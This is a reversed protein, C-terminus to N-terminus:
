CPRSPIVAPGPRSCSSPSTPTPAPSRTPLPGRSSSGTSRPGRSAAAKQRWSRSSGSPTATSRPSPTRGEREIAALPYAPDIPVAVAGVGLIALYAVVFAPTNACIIAVRDGPHVGLRALGGRMGAVQRRLEGYTTVVGEDSLLAPADAPHPDIITALNM